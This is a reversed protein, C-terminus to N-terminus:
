GLEDTSGTTLIVLGVFFDLCIQLYFACSTKVGVKASAHVIRPRRLLSMSINVVDKVVQPVFVFTENNKCGHSFHIKVLNQPHPIM